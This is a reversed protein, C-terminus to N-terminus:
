IIAVFRSFVVVKGVSVMISRLITIYTIISQSCFFLKLFLEKKKTTRGKGGRLPGVMNFSKKAAERVYLFFNTQKSINEFKVDTYVFTKFLDYFVYADHQSSGEETKPTPTSESWTIKNIKKSFFVSDQVMGKSGGTFEQNQSYKVM